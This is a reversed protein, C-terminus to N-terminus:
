ADPEARHFGGRFYLLPEAEASARHAAKVSGLVMTHDGAVQTTTTECDLWAIAGNVLPAGSFPATTTDVADFQTALDRGSRAFLAATDEQGVSMISVAWRGAAMMVPHFRGIKRISVLVLPPDLSIATFSNATMAHHHGDALTSVVTVGTAFRGMARRFRTPDVPDGTATM